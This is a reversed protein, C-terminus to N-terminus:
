ALLAPLRALFTRVDAIQARSGIFDFGTASVRRAKGVITGRLAHPIVPHEDLLGLLSAWAPLDLLGIVDLAERVGWPTGADCHTRLALWLSGLGDGERGRENSRAPGHAALM